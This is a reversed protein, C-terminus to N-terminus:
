TKVANGRFAVFAREMSYLEYSFHSLGEDYLLLLIIFYRKIYMTVLFYIIFLFSCFQHFVIYICNICFFIYICFFLVISNKKLKYFKRDYLIKCYYFLMHNIILKM